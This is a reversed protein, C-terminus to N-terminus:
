RSRLCFPRSCATHLLRQPHWTPATSIVPTATSTLSPLHDRNHHHGPQHTPRKPPCGRKLPHCVKRCNNSSVRELMAARFVEKVSVCGLLPRAQSGHNPQPPSGDGQGGWLHGRQPPTLVPLWRRGLGRGVGGGLGWGAGGGGEGRGVLGGGGREGEGAEPRRAFSSQQGGRHQGGGEGRFAAQEQRARAAGEPRPALMGM